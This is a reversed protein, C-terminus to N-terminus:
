RGVANWLFFADDLEVDRKEELHKMAAASTIAIAASIGASTSVTPGAGALLGCVTALSGLALGVASKKNMVGESAKLRDRISHLAPELYDETIERAIHMGNVSESAALREDLVRRLATRFRQFHDAEAERLRYLQDFTAGNLIPLDIQFAISDREKVQGSLFLHHSQVTCGLSAKYYKSAWIDAVLHDFYREITSEASALRFDSNEIKGRQYSGWVTHEFLNNNLTFRTCDKRGCDCPETSIRSNAAIEPVLSQSQLRLSNLGLEKIKQPWHEKCVSPKSRFILFPSSGAQWILLLFFLDSVLRERGHEDLSFSDSGLSPTLWDAVVVFDFYFWVRSLLRNVQRLRWDVAWCDLEGSLDLGRGALVRVGSPLPGQARELNARAAQRLEKLTEKDGIAKSIDQETRICAVDFWDFVWYQREM